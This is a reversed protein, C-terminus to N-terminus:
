TQKGCEATELHFIDWIKKCDTLTVSESQLKTMAKKAPELCIVIESIADWQEESLFLALNNVAWKEYFTRLKLLTSLM